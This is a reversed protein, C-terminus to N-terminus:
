FSLAFIYTVKRAEEKQFNAAGGGKWGDPVGISFIRATDM